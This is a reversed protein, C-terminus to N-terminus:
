NSYMGEPAELALGKPILKCYDFKNMNLWDIHRSYSPLTSIITTEGKRFSKLEESNLNMGRIKLFEILEGDTMSEMPRLYPKINKMYEKHTAYADDFKLGLLVIRKNANIGLLTYDSGEGDPSLGDDANVMPKYPLMACLVSLVLDKDKEKM